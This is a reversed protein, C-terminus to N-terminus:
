RKLFHHTHAASTALVLNKLFLRLFHESCHNIDCCMCLIISTTHSVSACHWPDGAVSECRTSVVSCTSLFNQSLAGASGPCSFYFNVKKFFKSKLNNNLSFGGLTVM